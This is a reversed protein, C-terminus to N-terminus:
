QIPLRSDASVRRARRQLGAIVAGVADGQRLVTATLGTYRKILNRLATHSPYGLTLAISEVTRGTTALLEAVMALRCWQILEAPAPFGARACRNVLTKRHVGLGAALAEVTTVDAPRALVANLMPHLTDPLFAALREFVGEAVCERRANLVAQALSAATDNVGEFVFARAGALVLQPMWAPQDSSPACFIVIPTRPWARALRRVSELAPRGRSDATALVFADCRPLTPLLGDLQDYTDVFRAIARRRFGDIM